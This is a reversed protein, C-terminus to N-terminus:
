KCVKAATGRYDPWGFQGNTEKFQAVMGCYTATAKEQEAPADPNNVMAIVIIFGCALWIRDAASM